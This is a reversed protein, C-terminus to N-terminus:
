KVPVSLNEVRKLPNSIEYTRDVWNFFARAADYYNNLTRAQYETQANRWELFSRTTVDAMCVVRRGPVNEGARAQIQHRFVVHRSQLLYGIPTPCGRNPM